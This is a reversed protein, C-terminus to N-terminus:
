TADGPTAQTRETLRDVLDAALAHSRHEAVVAHQNGTGVRAGQVGAEVRPGRRHEGRQGHLRAAHHFAPAAQVAHAAHHAVARHVPLRQHRRHAHRGPRQVPSPPGEDGRQGHAHQQQERGQHQPHVEQRPGRPAPASEGFAPGRSFAMQAAILFCYIAVCWRLAEGSLAVALFSGLWGGLLLGPVMWAVTPWLVSGRRHHARASSSATLIISALSSALAAHMAAEPPIGFSPLLWLLAGIIVLGGGIGLLGALVGAAVGLLPFVWWGEIM